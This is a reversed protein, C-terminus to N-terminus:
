EGGKKRMGLESEKFGLAYRHNLVRPEVEIGHVMMSKHRANFEPMSIKRIDRAVRRAVEEDTYVEILEIWPCGNPYSGNQWIMWSRYEKHPISEANDWLESM